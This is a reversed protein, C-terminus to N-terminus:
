VLNNAIDRALSIDASMTETLSQRTLILSFGLNVATIVFAIAIVILAAKKKMTVKSREM